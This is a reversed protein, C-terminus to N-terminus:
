YKGEAYDGMDLVVEKENKTERILNEKLVESKYRVWYGNLNDWFEKNSKLLQFINSLTAYYDRSDPTWGVEYLEWKTDLPTNYMTLEVKKERMM